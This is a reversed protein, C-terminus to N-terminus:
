AQTAPPDPTSGGKRRPQAPSEGKRNRDAKGATEAMQQRWTRKPKELDWTRIAAGTLMIMHGNAPCEVPEEHFLFMIHEPHKPCRCTEESRTWRATGSM